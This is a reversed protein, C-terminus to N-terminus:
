TYVHSLPHSDPLKALGERCGDAAHAVALRDLDGVALAGHGHKDGRLGAPELAQQLIGVDRGGLREPSGQAAKGGCSRQACALRERFVASLASGRRM